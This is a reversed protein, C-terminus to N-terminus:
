HEIFEEGASSSVIIGRLMRHWSGAAIGTGETQQQLWDGLLRNFCVFLVKAGASNARSAYELALLTKDTGAAGTFRCRPSAALEDLRDDQEGTLSMLRDETRSLSASRAIVLDFTPRLYNM